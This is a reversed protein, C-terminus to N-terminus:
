RRRNFSKEYSPDGKYMIVLKFNASLPTREEGKNLLHYM